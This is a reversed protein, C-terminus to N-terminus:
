RKPLGYLYHDINRAADPPLGKAAGVIPRLRELLSVAPGAQTSDAPDLVSIELIAGEPLNAGPELEIRGDRVYGRCTM